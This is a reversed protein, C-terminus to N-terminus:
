DFVVIGPSQDGQSQVVGFVTGNGDDGSITAGCKAGGKIPPQPQDSHRHEQQGM